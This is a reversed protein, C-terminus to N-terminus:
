YLRLLTYTSPAGRGGRKYDIFRNAVLTKRHEGLTKKNAIGALRMLRDNDVAITQRIGAHNGARNAVDLLTVYIAVATPKLVGIRKVNFANFQRILNLYEESM